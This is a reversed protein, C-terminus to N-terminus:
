SACSSRRRGHRVARVAPPLVRPEADGGPTPPFLGDAGWRKQHLDIFPRSTPAASRDLRDLRVRRDGRRPPGQAPDRPTGEQRPDRSLTEIEGDEPLTVVPCVDEREVNLTWGNPMTSRASAAALAEAAPDRLSAPAPRHRGLRRVGARRRLRRGCRRRRAPGRTASSRPTTPTTPRGSSSPRRRRRRRADARRRLRRADTTRTAADSPEVEHRHMLPVIGISRAPARALRGADGRPRQRWLADWWARQFAWSSFPTAWPNQAACATGPRARSTTSRVASPVCTEAIPPRRTPHPGAPGSLRAGALTPATM